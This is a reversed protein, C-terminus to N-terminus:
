ALVMRLIRGLGWGFALGLWLGCVMPVVDSDRLRFVISLAVGVTVGVTVGLVFWAALGM